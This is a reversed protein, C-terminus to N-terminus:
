PRVNWEMINWEGNVNQLACLAGTAIKIDQDFADFSGTLHPAFRAIGNSTIALVTKDKYRSECM